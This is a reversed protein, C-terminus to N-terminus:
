KRITIELKNTVFPVASAKGNEVIMTASYGQGNGANIEFAGIGAKLPKVSFNMLDASVDTLLSFGKPDTVYITLVVLGKEKSAKASTAKGIKPNYAVNSVEFFTPDYKVFVEFSDVALTRKPMMTLGVQYRDGVKM